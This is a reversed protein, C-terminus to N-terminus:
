QRLQKIYEWAVVNIYKWGFIKKYWNYDHRPKFGARFAWNDVSQKELRESTRPGLSYGEKAFEVIFLRGGSRLIRSLEVLFQEPEDLEHAVFAMFIGDVCNDPLPFISEQSLLPEINTVQQDLIKARLINLMKDSIDLGYVKEVHKSLPLTYVGTGCGIDAWIEELGPALDALIQSPPLMWTRLPSDLTEAKNPNFKHGMTM